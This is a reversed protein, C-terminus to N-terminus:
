FKKLTTISKIYLEAGNYRVNGSNASAAGDIYLDVAKQIDTTVGNIMSWYYCPKGANSADHCYYAASGPHSWNSDVAYRFFLNTYKPYALASNDSSSIEYPLYPGKWGNATSSVLDKSTAGFTGGLTLDKGTDLMFQELAKEAEKIDAIFAVIRSNQIASYLAAGSIVSLAGFIALAIRADLGFMAGKKIIM